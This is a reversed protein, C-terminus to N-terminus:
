PSIQCYPQGKSGTSLTRDTFQTSIRLTLSDFILQRQSSVITMRRSSQRKLIALTTEDITTNTFESVESETLENLKAIHAKALLHKGTSSTAHQLPHRRFQHCIICIVGPSSTEEISCHLYCRRWPALGSDSWAIPRKSSVDMSAWWHDFIIQLTLDCLDRIFVHENRSSIM